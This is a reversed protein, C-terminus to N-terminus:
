SLKKVSPNFFEKLVLMNKQVSYNKKILFDKQVFFIKNEVALIKKVWVKNDSVDQIHYKLGLTNPRLNSKAVMYDASHLVM